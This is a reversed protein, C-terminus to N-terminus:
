SIYLISTYESIAVATEMWKRWATWVAVEYVIKNFFFNSVWIIVQLGPLYKNFLAKVYCWEQEPNRDKNIEDLEEYKEQRTGSLM